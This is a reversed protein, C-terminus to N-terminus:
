RCEVLLYYIDTKDVEVSTYKDKPSNKELNKANHKEFFFEIDGTPIKTIDNIEQITMGAFNNAKFAEYIWSTKGTRKITSTSM